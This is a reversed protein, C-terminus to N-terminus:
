HWGTEPLIFGRMAAADHVRAAAAKIAGSVIPDEFDVLGEVEYCKATKYVLVFLWFRLFRFGIDTRDFKL